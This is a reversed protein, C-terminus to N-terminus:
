LLAGAALEQEALSLVFRARLEVGLKSLQPYRKLSWDNMKFAANLFRLDDHRVAIRAFLIAVDWRELTLQERTLEPTSRALANERAVEVHRLLREVQEMAVRIEEASGAADLADLSKGVGATFRGGEIVGRAPIAALWERAARLASESTDTAADAAAASLWGLCAIHKQALALDARVTAPLARADLANLGAVTELIIERIEEPAPTAQLSREAATCLRVLAGRIM